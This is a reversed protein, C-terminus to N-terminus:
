ARHSFNFSLKTKGTYNMCFTNKDEPIETFNIDRMIRKLYQCDDYKGYYAGEGEHAGGKKM